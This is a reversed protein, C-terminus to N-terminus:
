IMCGPHVRRKTKVYAAHAEEATNFTGIQRQLGDVVIRAKFRNGAKSVGLLGLMNGSHAVRQNQQNHRRVVDRLNEIRNDARKGNIHDIQASPWSGYVYLWALRHAGYSRGDIEIHIYGHGVLAGALDGAKLKRSPSVRWAFTGASPAYTLAELLRTHTVWSPNKARM